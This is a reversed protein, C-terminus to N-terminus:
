RVRGMRDLPWVVAVVRGTVRSTPIMGGGPAGLLARSDESRSRHDGMLWIRGDPVTVDFPVDSPRDGAFLYGTEDLPTGNRVLRDRADCCVLHDGAVALVRKVVHTAGGPAVLLDAGDVVVVDGRHVGRLRPTVRDVLVHDGPRLTPRMSGTPVSFPSLVLLRV